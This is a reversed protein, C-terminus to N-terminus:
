DGVKTYEIIIIDNINVNLARNYNFALKNSIIGSTLVISGTGQKIRADTIFNIYSVDISTSVWNNATLNFSTPNNICKRYLPKGFWTGIVRETDDYIEQSSNSGVVFDDILNVITEAPINDKEAEYEARTGTWVIKLKTASIDGALEVGNIQPKNDFSEYNRIKGLLYTLEDDGFYNYQSM